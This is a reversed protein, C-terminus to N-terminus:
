QQRCLSDFADKLITIRFGRNVYFKQLQKSFQWAVGGVFGIPQNVPKLPEIHKQHFLAIADAILSAIEPEAINASAFPVFGALYSNAPNASYVNKILESPTAHAFEFFKTCLDASFEGRIAKTILTKGIHAGSGEDGLLYGLSPAQHEIAKGNYYAAAAGTGLIAAIGSRDGFLAIAAGELDSFVQVNTCSFADSGANSVTKKNAVTSCGAGYYIITDVPNNIQALVKACLASLASAPSSNPNFGRTEITLLKSDILGWKCKTGGAEVAIKM